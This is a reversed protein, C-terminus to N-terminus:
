LKNVNISDILRRGIIKMQDYNYHFADIFTVDPADIFHLDDYNRGLAQLTDDIREYYVDNRTIGILYTNNIKPYEVKVSDILNRVRNYFELANKQEIADNIGLWLVAHIERLSDFEATAIDMRKTMSDRAQVSPTGYLTDRNDWHRIRTGGQGAKVLWISDIYGSDVSNAIQLDLGHKSGVHTELARHNIISNSNPDSLKLGEFVYTFNNLIQLTRSVDVEASTGDSNAAIGGANSEGFILVIDGTLTAASQETIASVGGYYGLLQCQALIPILIFLIILRSQMVESRM